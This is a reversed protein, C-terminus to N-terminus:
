ELDAAVVVAGAVVEVAFCLHSCGGWGQHGVAEVVGLTKDM